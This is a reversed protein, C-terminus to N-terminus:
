IKIPVNKIIPRHLRQMRSTHRANQGDVDVHGIVALNQGTAGVLVGDDEVLVGFLHHGNELAVRLLDGLDDIMRDVIRDDGRRRVVRDADPMHWRSHVIKDHEHSCIPALM